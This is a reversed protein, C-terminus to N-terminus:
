LTRTHEDYAENTKRVRLRNVLTRMENIFHACYSYADHAHVIVIKHMVIILTRKDTTYAEHANLKENLTHAHQTRM